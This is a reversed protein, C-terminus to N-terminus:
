ACEISEGDDYSRLIMATTTTMHHLFLQLAHYCAANQSGLVEEDTDDEPKKAIYFEEGSRLSYTQRTPSNKERSYDTEQQDRNKM